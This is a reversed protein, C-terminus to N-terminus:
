AIGPHGNLVVATYFTQVIALVILAFGGKLACGRALYHPPPTRGDKGCPLSYAGLRGCLRRGVLCSIPAWNAV